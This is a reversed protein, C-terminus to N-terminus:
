SLSFNSNPLSLDLPVQLWTLEIQPAVVNLIIVSLIFVSLMLVSLISVSLMFASLM